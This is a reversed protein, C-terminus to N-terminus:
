FTAPLSLHCLHVRTRWVCVYVDVVLPSHAPRPTLREDVRAHVRIGGCTRDCRMRCLELLSVGRELVTRAGLIGVADSSAHPRQALLALGAEDHELVCCPLDLEETTDVVHRLNVPSQEALEIETVDYLRRAHHQARTAPLEGNRRARHPKEGLAQPRQGLLEM